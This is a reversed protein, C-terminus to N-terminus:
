PEGKQFAIGRDVEEPPRFLNDLFGGLHVTDWALVWPNMKNESGDEKEKWNKTIDM